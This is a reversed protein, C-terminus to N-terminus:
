IQCLSYASLEREGFSIHCVFYVGFSIADNSYAYIACTLGDYKDPTFFCVRKGATAIIYKKDSSLQLSSTSSATESDTFLSRTGVVKSSRVDFLQVTGAASGAALSFNSIDGIWESNNITGCGDPLAMKEPEEPKNLDYIRVVKEMGGTVVKSDGKLM